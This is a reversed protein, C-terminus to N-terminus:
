LDWEGERYSSIFNALQLQEEANLDGGDYTLEDNNRIFLGMPEDGSNWISYISASDFDITNGQHEAVIKIDIEGSEETFITTFVSNLM